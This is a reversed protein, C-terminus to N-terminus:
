DRAQAVATSTARADSDASATDHMVCKAKARWADLSEVVDVMSLQHVPRTIIVYRRLTDVGHYSHELVRKQAYDLGTCVIVTDAALTSGVSASLAIGIGATALCRVLAQM